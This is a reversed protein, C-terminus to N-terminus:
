CQSYDWRGYGGYVGCTQAPYAYGYAPRGYVVPGQATYGGYAPYAYAGYAPYTDPYSTYTSGYYTPYYGGYYAPYGYYRPATAAGIAAGALAGFALGAAIGAGSGRHRWRVDVVNDQVAAKVGTTSTLVPGAFAPTALALAGVLGLAVGRRRSNSTM